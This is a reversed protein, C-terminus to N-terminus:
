RGGTVDLLAGTVYSARPSLLWLIAEAVEAATGPRGAPVSGALRHARRPDGSGAHIDTDILGPRVANVRVAPALEKALGVTLTDVAGKSAAYDVYEDPSGLRAAVSSVLVIAGGEMRRAAERATLLTGTVNTAVVRAIRDAETEALRCAPAVIGASAVVGRLPGLREAADFLAAVDGAVSVDGPVAVAVGGAGSIEEM